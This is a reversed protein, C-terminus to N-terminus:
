STRAIMLVAGPSDVEPLDVRVARPDDTDACAVLVRGGPGVLPLLAEAADSPRAVARSVAVDFVSELREAREPYVRANALGLDVIEMELFGAKRKHSEVLTFEAQPYCVALVLGPFGAGSGVDVWRESPQPPSVVAFLLSDATHRRLVDKEDGTSVLGLRPSHRSVADAHAVLPSLLTSPLGLRGLVTVVANTGPVM